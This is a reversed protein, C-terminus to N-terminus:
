FRYGMGAGFMVGPYAGAEGGTPSYAEAVGGLSLTSTLQHRLSISLNLDSERSGSPTLSTLGLSQSPNPSFGSLQNRWRAGLSVAATADPGILGGRYAASIDASALAGDSRLSSSLSAETSLSYAVYGGVALSGRAGSVPLAGAPRSPEAVIGVSYGGSSQLPLRAEGTAGLFSEAARVNPAGGPVLRNGTELAAAPLAMALFTLALLSRVPSM